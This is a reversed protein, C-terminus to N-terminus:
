AVGIEGMLEMGNENVLILLVEAVVMPLEEEVVVVGEMALIQLIHVEDIMREAEMEIM